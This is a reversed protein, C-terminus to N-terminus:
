SVAECSCQSDRWMLASWSTLVDYAQETIAGCGRRALCADCTDAGSQMCTVKEFRYGLPAHLAYLPVCAACLIKLMVWRTTAGWRTSVNLTHSHLQAPLQPSHSVTAM